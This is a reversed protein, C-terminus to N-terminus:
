EQVAIVASADIEVEAPQIRFEIFEFAQIIRQRGTLVVQIEGATFHHIRRVPIDADGPYGNLPFHQISPQIGHELKREFGVINCSGVVLGDVLLIRIGAGIRAQVPFGVLGAQKQFTKHM